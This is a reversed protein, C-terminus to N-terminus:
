ADAEYRTVAHRLTGAADRVEEVINRGRCSPCPFYRTDGNADAMWHLDPNLVNGPSVEFALMWRCEPNLCRLVDIDAAKKKAPAGETSM